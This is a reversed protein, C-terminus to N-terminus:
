KQAQGFINAAANILKRRRQFIPAPLLLLHAFLFIFVFNSSSRGLIKAGLFSGFYFSVFPAFIIASKEIWLGMKM